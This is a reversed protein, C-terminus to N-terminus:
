SATEIIVAQFDEVVYGLSRLATVLDEHSFKGDKFEPEDFKLTDSSVLLYGSYLISYDERNGEDPSTTVILKQM